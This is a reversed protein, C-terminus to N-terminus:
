QDAKWHCIVTNHEVKDLLTLHLLGLYTLSMIHRSWNSGLIRSNVFFLDILLM